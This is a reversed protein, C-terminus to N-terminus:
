AAQRPPPPEVTLDAAVPIPNAFFAAGAFTPPTRVVPVTRTPRVASIGCALMMPCSEGDGHHHGHPTPAPRDAPRPMDHASPHPASAAAQDGESPMGPGMDCRVAVLQSWSLGALAIVAVTHRMLCHLRPGGRAAVTRRDAHQSSPDRRRVGGQLRAQENCVSGDHCGGRRGGRRARRNGFSCSCPRQSTPITSADAKTLHDRYTCSIGDFPCQYTM